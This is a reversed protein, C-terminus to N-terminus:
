CRILYHNPAIYGQANIMYYIIISM